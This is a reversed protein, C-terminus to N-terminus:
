LIKDCRVARTAPLTAQGPRAQGSRGASWKKMRENRKRCREKQRGMIPKGIGRSQPTRLALSATGASHRALVPRDPAQPGWGEWICGGWISARFPSQIVRRRRSVGACRQDRTRYLRRGCPESRPSEIEGQGGWCLARKVSEQRRMFDSLRMPWQRSPPARRSCLYCCRAAVDLPPGNYRRRHSLHILPV